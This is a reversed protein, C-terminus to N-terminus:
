YSYRVGAFFERGTYHLVYPRQGISDTYQNQGQNTLNVAELSFTLNDNWKYSSSLDLNFTSANLLQDNLSGPNISVIYKSRFSGAIRAQFVSDDYYLTANFSTRSLNNLDAYTNVTGNANLYYQKAQVFTVNSLVGFNSWFDPLFDFPQQWNIETGYLPSGKSNIPQSFNWILNENCASGYSTGCAAVVLSTPLGLPNGAYPVQSTITQILTDIHKYFFAFSILAGKDYYWEFSLDANKSTFPKLLPNGTTVNRNAGSLSVAAGPLMSTLSPRTLTQALNLRILFSDAPELIANLAPLFNHYSQKVDAPVIAKAVADYSYGLSESTTEIYRGGINGRFPVGYFQADWDAQVWFGLDNERVSGNSTLAPEPGFKFAGNEATPSWIDFQKNFANLDPIMWSAASGAPLDIGRLTVLQSFNNLNAARIDAPINFDQNATTGNSRALSVTRYGYNKYDVGGSLRLWDFARYEADGSITRFSNYNAEARERMQSIFWNNLSTVNGSSDAASGYKLAPMQSYGFYQYSYGQAGLFTGGPGAGGNYDYTLTTELPEQMHSESWGALAHVKFDRSFSHSFDATVQGFRSGIDTIFHESRLGVGNATLATLNNRATDVTYSTVAINGSGLSVPTGAGGLASTRFNNGGLSNAELYEEQRQMQYNAYLSDITLLTDDDPQWQISNTLGLRKEHNTVLDYRAFRPRFAENVLDYETGSTLGNVSLVRQATSCPSPCGVIGPAAHTVSQPTNDNQFRVTSYGEELTNRSGYAASFLIGVKGGLFTDSIIAAVRPNGSQSLDNYGMQANTTFIFGPHDFPHGTTLDVTAGLSGEEIDASASKHVTIGSFLDSAFINFDFARGRNTGQVSSSGATALAEMGNIRVRTFEPSLGRVSIEHGEGAQRDLAIGPIRQISEALNLDPFKAIDEALISDSSDLADRKMDLAKELSAKFGNVVVSEVPTAAGGGPSSPAQTVARRMFPRRVILGNSGDPVVELDTGRTLMSVAQKADMQGSIAPAKLGEVSEPTFLISEGTKQAVSRLADSLPQEQLSINASQQAAAAANISLVAVSGFLVSRLVGWRSMAM